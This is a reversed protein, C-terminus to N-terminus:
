QFKVGTVEMKINARVATKSIGELKVPVKLTKNPELEPQRTPIIIVTREAVPQGAPDVVAARMELGTITKGTFNRVTTELQMVIDGLARPAETAEPQDVVLLERIREFEPTGARIAGELRDPGDPRDSVRLLLLILGAVAVAAILSIVILANRRSKDTARESNESLSM